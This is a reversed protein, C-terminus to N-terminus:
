DWDGISSSDLFGRYNGRRAVRGRCLHKKLHAVPMAWGCSKPGSPSFCRATARVFARASGQSVSSDIKSSNKHRDICRFFVRGHDLTNLSFDSLLIDVQPRSNRLCFNNSKLTGAVGAQRLRLPQKQQLNTVAPVVRRRLTNAGTGNVPECLNLM